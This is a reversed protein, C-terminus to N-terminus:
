QLELSGTTSVSGFQNPEGEKVMDHDSKPRSESSSEEDSRDVEDDYSVVEKDSDSSKSHIEESDYAEKNLIERDHATGEEVNPLHPLSNIPIFSGALVGDTNVHNSNSNVLDHDRRELSTIIRVPSNSTGSNVRDEEYMAGPIGAKDRANLREDYAKKERCAHVQHRLKKYFSCKGLSDEYILQQKFWFLTQTGPQKHEVQIEELRPVGVEMEVLVRAYNRYIVNKTRQDLGVPRGVAKAMTSLVKEHWYELPLDPFRVCVLVKNILKEHISFDPRWRQFQVLQGGIKVPSRKWMQAMDHESEFQFITFGKGM